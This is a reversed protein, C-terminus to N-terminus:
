EQWEDDRYQFPEQAVHNTVDTWSLFHLRECRGHFTETIEAVRTLDHMIDGCVYGLATVRKCPGSPRKRCTANEVTKLAINHTKSQFTLFNSVFYSSIVVWQIVIYVHLHVVMNDPHCRPHSFTYMQLRGMFSLNTSGSLSNTQYNHMIESKRVCCHWPTGNHKVYM